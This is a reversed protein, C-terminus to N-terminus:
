YVSLRNKGGKKIKGLKIQLIITTITIKAGEFNLRFLQDPLETPYLLLRRLQPGCTRIRDPDSLAGKELPKKKILLWNM